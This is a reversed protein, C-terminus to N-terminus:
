QQRYEPSQGIHSSETKGNIEPAFNIYFFSFPIYFLRYNDLNCSNEILKKLSELIYLTM